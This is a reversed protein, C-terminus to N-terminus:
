HITVYGFSRTLRIDYGNQTILSVGGIDGGMNGLSLFNEKKKESFSKYEYTNM